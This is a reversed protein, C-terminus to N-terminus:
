NYLHLNSCRSTFDQEFKKVTSAPERTNNKQMMYVLRKKDNDCVKNLVTVYEQYAAMPYPMGYASSIFIADKRSVLPFSLSHKEMKMKFEDFYHGIYYFKEIAHSFSLKGSTDDIIQKCSYRQSLQKPFIEKLVQCETIFAEVEGGKGEITNQIFEDLTFNKKYPNFSKRFIFHTLEHALDLIADYRNLNKNIFIKSKTEYAMHEPNSISFRRILTTDTLSGYGPKILDLLTEGYESSKEKALEILKQGIKSKQLDLILSKVNLEDSKYSDTWKHNLGVSEMDITVIQRKAFSNWSIFFSIFLLIQFRM